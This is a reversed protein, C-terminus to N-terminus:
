LRYELINSRVFLVPSNMQAPLGISYDPKEVM